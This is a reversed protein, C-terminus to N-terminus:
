YSSVLNTLDVKILGNTADQRAVFDSSVEVYGTDIPYTYTNLVVKPITIVLKNKSANGITEDGELTIVLSQQTKNEFVSQLSAINTDLYATMSGSCESPEVYLNTPETNGSLGHFTQLNNNYELSLESLANKIDTGGLTISSVDTWDFVKSSEYSPTIATATSKSLARGEFSIKVAEGVSLQIGIKSVIFGAYRETISGIKQELTMSTKTVSETFAHDYVATEGSTTSSTVSGLASSLIYGVGQPYANMEFSGNYERLGAAFEKNRAPSTDIGEVGVVEEETVVGDSPLVSLSVSPTVATGITSEKAISIQTLVGENAM